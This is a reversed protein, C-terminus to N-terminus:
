ALAASLVLMRQRHWELIRVPFATGAKVTGKTKEFEPRILCADPIAPSASARAKASVPRHAKSAGKDCGTMVLFAVCPTMLRLILHMKPNVSNAEAHLM